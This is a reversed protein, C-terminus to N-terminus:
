GGAKRTVFGGTNTAQVENVDDGNLSGSHGGNQQRQQVGQQAGQVGVRAPGFTEKVGQKNGKKSERSVVGCKAARNQFSSLAETLGDKPVQVGGTKSHQHAQAM